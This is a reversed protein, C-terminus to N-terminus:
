GGVWIKSSIRNAYVLCPNGAHVASVSAHSLWRIGPRDSGAVVARGTNMFALCPGARSAPPIPAKSIGRSATQVAKAVSREWPVGSVSYAWVVV